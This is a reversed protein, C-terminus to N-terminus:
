VLGESVEWALTESLGFLLLSLDVLIGLDLGGLWVFGLCDIFCVVFLVLHLLLDFGLGFLLWCGYYCVGSWAVGIGIWCGLGFYTALLWLALFDAFGVM